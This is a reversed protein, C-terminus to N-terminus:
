RWRSASALVTESAGDSLPIGNCFDSALQMEAFGRAFYMEGIDAAPTPKYTNLLAVAQNASTRVRYLARLTSNVTANNLQIQRQDTEDNQVFTSSTAWEDVLLGGFLWSSEGDATATRLAAVARRQPGRDRRRRSEVSSPDIISPNVAELLNDKLTDCAALGVVAALAVTTTVARGSRMQLRM